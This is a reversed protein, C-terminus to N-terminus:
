FAGVVSCFFDVLLTSVLITIRIRLRLISADLCMSHLWAVEFRLLVREEAVLLVLSRNVRGCPFCAIAARRLFNGGLLLPLRPLFHHVMKPQM